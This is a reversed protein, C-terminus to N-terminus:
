FGPERPPSTLAAELREIRAELKALAEAQAELVRGMEEVLVEKLSLETSLRAIEADKEALAQAEPDPRPAGPEM